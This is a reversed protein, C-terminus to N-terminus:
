QENEGHQGSANITKEAAGYFKGTTRGVFKRKKTKKDRARARARERNDVDAYVYFNLRFFFRPKTTDERNNFPQIAM